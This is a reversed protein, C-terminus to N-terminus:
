WLDRLGHALTMFIAGDAYRFHTKQSGNIPRVLIEYGNALSAGRQLKHLFLEFEPVLPWLRKQRAMSSYKAEPFQRERRNITTTRYLAHPTM